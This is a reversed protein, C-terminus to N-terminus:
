DPLSTSRLVAATDCDLLRAVTASTTHRVQLVADVGDYVVPVLDGAPWQAPGCSFGEATVTFSDSSAKPTPAAFGTSQGAAAIAAADSAFSASRIPVPTAMANGLVRDSGESGDAPADQAAMEDESMSEESSTMPASRAAGSDAHDASDSSLPGNALGFGVGGVVVVAAAAALLRPARRRFPIVAAQQYSARQAVLDALVGDMRAAVDVPIPSDDRADALLRRIAEDDPQDQENMRGGERQDHSEPATSSGPRTSTVTASANRNGEGLASEGATIWSALRHRGRACRSKITGEPVGLMQSVESIPYGEMDVLVLAVRQEVPLRALLEVVLARREAAVAEDAPDADLPIEFDDPIASTARVKSARIRDLCANVVVRHLWTTVASEGRFSGARRFAAVLGDQLGDAADTPNGMTRLAVAWLRDRHRAFLEGFADPDGAVHADLLEADSREAVPRSGM